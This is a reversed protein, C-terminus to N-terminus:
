MNFYFLDWLSVILVTYLHGVLLSAILYFFMPPTRSYIVYRFDLIFMNCIFDIM